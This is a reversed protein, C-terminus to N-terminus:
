YQLINGTYTGQVTVSITLTEHVRERQYLTSLESAAAIGKSRLSFNGKRLRRVQVAHQLLLFAARQEAGESAEPKGM